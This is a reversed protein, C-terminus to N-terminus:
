VRMVPRDIVAHVDRVLQLLGIALTLDRHRIVTRQGVFSVSEDRHLTVDGHRRLWRLTCSHILQEALGSEIIVAGLKWTTRHSTLGWPQCEPVNRWTEAAFYHLERSDEGMVNGDPYAICNIEMFGRPHISCGAESNCIRREAM